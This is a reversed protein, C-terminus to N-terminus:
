FPAYSLSLSVSRGPEYRRQVKNGQTSDRAADLLNSAGLKLELGGALRDLGQSIVLDLSTFAEEYIDPLGFAGVDTLRRGGHSGMIRVLSGWDPRFYQLAVNATQDAQGQLPRALSTVVSLQHDGMQVDSDIFAYNANISWRELSPMVVDLSRRFELEVGWLNASDANVFSTRLETTPQIIREIPDNIRKYFVSAAIVEGARPFTEWRLDYGDLTAQRLDPNGALSRGGTVEVFTFPSLERFEPRNVSQGYAFRLNTGPAYQYVVNISPLVDTSQNRSVVGASTDFPNFTSVTQDSDEYRAGGIFRWAGISVDGMLYGAAVAHEADYADNVGTIERIEFGGPRINEATFIEEPTGTLDFQLQNTTTFRLRRANFDRTRELVDVGGKVSGFWRGDSGVAFRTYSAGGQVVDDELGFFDMRGSEPFGVQLAFVGPASERYLNERLNSDNTARSFAVNWDLLRSAGASGIEHEGGLRSSLVEEIGYRGRYDRIFGGTNTNLGEQFRFESSADRTLISNLFIRQGEGLRLNFNGVFGTRASETDMTMAYDNRPVLDGTSDLGFFRQEEAVTAFGHTSVASLVVGLRGFTQGFMLSFDSAPPATTTEGTWSGILAEGVVELEQPTFGSTDLASRRALRVSPVVTSLPQGGRGYRDLGGAFRQFEGGTAGSHYGGGISVKLTAASPFATTTLEVVGSGFDGPKDPTYTKVVNVAELLKAPFLDLPVVRRETETTPVTSGNLTTGSYREGLGRVYVYKDGVVSVGTLREVVGAASSDPTKRIEEASISDSVVSSERRSHLLSVEGVAESKAVVDVSEGFVPVLRFAVELKQDASLRIERSVPQFGDLTAEITWAGPLLEPITFQGDMESYAVESEVEARTATVTVGPIAEGSEDTVVGSVGSKGSSQSYLPSVMTTMVFLILLARTLNTLASGHPGHTSCKM